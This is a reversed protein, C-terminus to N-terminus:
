SRGLREAIQRFVKKAEPLAVFAMFVHFAGPTEFYEIRGGAQKVKDAFIRCDPRVIDDEGQFLLIQPLGSVDGYIPSLHPSALDDDAAWHKMCEFAPLAQLMVDRKEVEFIEPNTLTVDVCPAFLLLHGPQPLSHAKLQQALVLAINGGASDGAFVIDEPQYEELLQRYHEILGPYTDHNTHEPALPYFVMEVNHGTAQVLRDIMWWHPTVLPFVFAGGHMYLIIKRSGGKPMIRTVPCFSGQREVIDYKAQLQKTLPAPTRAMTGQKVKELRETLTNTRSRIAWVLIKTLRMAISPM